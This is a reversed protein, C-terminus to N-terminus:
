FLFPTLRSNEDKGAQAELIEANRSRSIVSGHPRGHAQTKGRAGRGGEVHPGDLVQPLFAGFFL